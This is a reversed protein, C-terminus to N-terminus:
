GLKQGNARIVRYIANSEDFRGHKGHEVAATWLSDLDGIDAQNEAYISIYFSLLILSIFIRM